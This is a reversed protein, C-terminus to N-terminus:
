LQQLPKTMSDVLQENSPVYSTQLFGELVKDRTYHCDIRLHKTREHFIPNEDIHMAAKNDCYMTIPLALLIRFDQLLNSIWQIESTTASM